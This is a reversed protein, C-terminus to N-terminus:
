KEKSGSFVGKITKLAEAKAAFRPDVEVLLTIIAWILVAASAYSPMVFHLPPRRVLWLVM